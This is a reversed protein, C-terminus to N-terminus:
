RLPSGSYIDSKWSNHNGNNGHHAPLQYPRQQNSIGVIPKQNKKMGRIAELFKSQYVNTQDAGLYQPFELCSGFILGQVFARPFRWDLDTGTTTTNDVVIPSSFYTYRVTYIADPTRMFRVQWLGDAYDRNRITYEYPKGNSSLRETLNLRVREQEEYYYLPERPSADYYMGPEVMGEFDDPLDYDQTGSALALTAERRFAPMRSELVMMQLVRGLADQIQGQLATDASTSNTLHFAISNAITGITVTQLAM